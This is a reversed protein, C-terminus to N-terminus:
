KLLYAAHLLGRFTLWEDHIWDNPLAEALAKADGGTVVVRTKTDLDAQIQQVIHKMGGVAGWYVGAAIAEQTTKGLAPVTSEVHVMPLVATGRNLSQAMTAVGPAIVGGVFCAENQRPVVVDYTVATGADIAICPLPYHAAVALVNAMRDAGLTGIGPYDVSLGRKMLEHTLEEVECLEGLATVLERGRQPVVSAIMARSFAWDGVLRLVNECSIDATPMVRLTQHQLGDATALMFKTRTNSNDVLLIM